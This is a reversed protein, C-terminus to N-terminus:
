LVSVGLLLGKDGSYQMALWCLDTAKVCNEELHFWVAAESPQFIPQKVATSFAAAPVQLGADINFHMHQSPLMCNPM